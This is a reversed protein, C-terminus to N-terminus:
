IYYKNYDSAPLRGTSHARPLRLSQKYKQTYKQTESTNRIVQTEHSYSTRQCFPPQLTSHIIM